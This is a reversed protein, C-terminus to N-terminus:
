SPSFNRIKGLFGKFCKRPASLDTDNVTLNADTIALQRGRSAAFHLHLDIQPVDEGHEYFIGVPNEFPDRASFLLDMLQSLDNKKPNFEIQIGDLTETLDPHLDGIPDIKGIQIKLVGDLNEFIKQLEDINQSHFYIKKTYM